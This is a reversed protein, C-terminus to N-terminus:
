QEIKKFLQCFIKFYILNLLSSIMLFGAFSSAMPSPIESVVWSLILLIAWSRVLHGQVRCFHGEGQSTAKGHSSV